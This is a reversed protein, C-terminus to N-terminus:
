ADQTGPLEDQAGRAKGKDSRAKRPKSAGKPFRSTRLASLTEIAADLAPEEAAMAFAILRQIESIKKAM